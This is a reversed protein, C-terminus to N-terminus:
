SLESILRRQYAIMWEVYANVEAAHDAPLRDRVVDRYFHLRHLVHEPEVGHHQLRDMGWRLQDALLDVTNFALATELGKTTFQLGQQLLEAAQEGHHAVEERHELARQATDETIAEAEVRFSALAEQSVPPPTSLEAM